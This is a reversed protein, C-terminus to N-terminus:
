IIESLKIGITNVERQATKGFFVVYEQQHEPNNLVDTYFVEYYINKSLSKGDIEDHLLLKAAM